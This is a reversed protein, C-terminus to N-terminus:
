PTNTSGIIVSALINGADTRGQRAIAYVKDLTNIPNTTSSVKRFLYPAVATSAFRYFAVDSHSSSTFTLYNGDNSWNIFNISPNTPFLTSDTIVPNFISYTSSLNTFSTGSKKLITVYPSNNANAIALYTGSPHWACSDSNPITISSVDVSSLTGSIFQYMAFNQTYTPSQSSGVVAIFNDSSWQINKVSLFNSLSTDSGVQTFTDGTSRQYIRLVATGSFGYTLAFYTGDPSWAFTLATSPLASIPSVLSFGTTARKHFRFFPSASTATAVFENTPSWKAFDSLSASMTVREFTDGVYRRYTYVYPSAETRVTFQVSDPSWSIDYVVGGATTQAALQTLTDGNRKYVLIFPAANTGVALFTGDPSWANAYNFAGGSVNADAVLSNNAMLDRYYSELVDGRNVAEDVKVTRLLKSSTNIEGGEGQLIFNGSNTNSNWVITYVSNITLSNVNVNDSTRIEKFGTGNVNVQITGSGSAHAKFKISYGELGPLTNPYNTISLIYNPATGSTQAYATQLAITTQGGTSSTKSLGTGNTIVGAASFQTWVINDFGITAISDSTVVWGTDAWTTGQQVFVFAGRAESPADFDEARTWTGTAVVYIGNQTQDNQFRVLVRDGNTCSIGDLTQPSGSLTINGTTSAKVAAKINLGQVLADSYGKLNSLAQAVNSAAPENPFGFPASFTVATADPSGINDDVYQKTAADTNDSPAPLGTIKNGALDLNNYVKM